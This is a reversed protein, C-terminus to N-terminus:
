QGRVFEKIINTLATLAIHNGWKTLVKGTTKREEREWLKSMYAASLGGGLYAINFQSGGKDGQTIFVRSVAYGIRAGAGKKESRHYRPDQRFITAYAFREFFKATASFAFSRAARTGADALFNGHVGNPDHDKDLAEGRLGSFAANGYAGASLFSSKFFYKFKEGATMPITHLPERSPPAPTRVTTPLSRAVSEAAEVAANGNTATAKMFNVRLIQQFAAGPQAAYTAHRVPRNAKLTAGGVLLARAETPAATAANTAKSAARNHHSASKNKADNSASVCPAVLAVVASVLLAVVLSKVISRNFITM